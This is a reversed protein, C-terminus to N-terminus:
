PSERLERFSQTFPDKREGQDLTELFEELAEGINRPPVDRAFVRARRQKLWGELADALIRHFLDTDSDVVQEAEAPKAGHSILEAVLTQRLRPWVDPASIGRLETGEGLLLWNLNLNKIEALKVLSVADPTSPPIGFWGTTTSPPLDVDKNMQNTNPYHRRVFERLRESIAIVQEEPLKRPRNPVCRGRNRYVSM